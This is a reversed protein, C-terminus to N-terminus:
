VLNAWAFGKAQAVMVLNEREEADQLELGRNVVEALWETRAQGPNEKYVVYEALAEIGVSPELKIFPMLEMWITVEDVPTFGVLYRTGLAGYFGAEHPTTGCAAGKDRALGLHKLYSKTMADRIGQPGFIAM